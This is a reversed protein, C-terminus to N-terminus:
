VSVSNQTDTRGQGASISTEPVDRRSARPLFKPGAFLGFLFGGLHAEWALGGTGGNSWSMLALLVFLFINQKILEWGTRRITRSRVPLLAGNAAPVRILLGLLGYLGGSAGVMPVTGTPHLALFLAAGAMASVFFVALFRLWSLPPPGLRAVLTGGIAVLVSMNMFLHMLSGHAFMHLFVTEFRGQAVASGSLGWDTMGGSILHWVWILVCLAALAVTPAHTHPALIEPEPEEFEFPRDEGAFHVEGHEELLELGTRMSEMVEHPAIVMVGGSGPAFAIYQHPWRQWWQKGTTRWHGDTKSQAYFRQEDLVAELWAAQEQSVQMRAPRSVYQALWGLLLFFAAGTPFHELLITLWLTAGLVILNPVLQYLSYIPVLDRLVGNQSRIALEDTSGTM